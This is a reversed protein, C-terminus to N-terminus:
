EAAARKNPSGLEIGAAALEAETFGLEEILVERNHAGLKAGAAKIKGPTASFKGVVNQMRVPGGLEADDISAINERAIFNPDACIQAVDNVPAIPADIALFRQMLADFDHLGIAGQLVEDLVKANELRLRNDLFRPDKM